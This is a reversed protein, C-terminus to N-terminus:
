DIVDNVILLFISSHIDKLWYTPFDFAPTQALPALGHAVSNKQRHVHSFNCEEFNEKLTQCEELILNLYSLELQQNLLRTIVDSSNSEAM